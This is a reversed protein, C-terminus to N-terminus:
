YRFPNVTVVIGNETVVQVTGSAYVQRTVGNVIVDTPKVTRIIGDVYTPSISRGMSDLGSPLMRQVAHETYLRGGIEAYEKGAVTVKPYNEFSTWLQKGGKAPAGNVAPESGVTGSRPVRVKPTVIPETSVGSLAAIMSFGGAHGGAYADEIFPRLSERLEEPVEDMITDLSRQDVGLMGSSFADCIPSNPTLYEALKDQDIPPRHYGTGIGNRGGHDRHNNNWDNREHKHRERNTQKKGGYKEEMGHWYSEGHSIGSPDVYRLPNNGAYVYWNGGDRAPDESIFRGLDAEYWRANFYYLGSDGDYEKGTFQVTHDKGGREDYLRGFPTYDGDWVAKGDEGTVLVTSGLHDSHYYYRNREGERVEELAFRKGGVYVYTLSEQEGEEWVVNGSLDFVYYRSGEDSEKEVRLGQADYRYGAVEVGDVKVRVLRNLLDYEYERLSGDGSFVPSGEKGYLSSEYRSWDSV